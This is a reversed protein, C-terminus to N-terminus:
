SLHDPRAVVPVGDHLAETENLDGIDVPLGGFEM